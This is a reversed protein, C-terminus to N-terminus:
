LGHGYVLFFVVSCTAELRWAVMKNQLTVLSKSSFHFFFFMVAFNHLHCIGFFSNIVFLFFWQWGTQAGTQTEKDLLHELQSFSITCSLM